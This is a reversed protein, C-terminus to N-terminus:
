KLTVVCPFGIDVSAVGYGQERLIGVFGARAADDDAFWDSFETESASSGDANRIVAGYQKMGDMERRSTTSEGIREGM